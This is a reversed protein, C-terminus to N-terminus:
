KQSYDPIVGIVDLKGFLTGDNVSRLNIVFIEKIAIWAAALFVGAAAGLAIYIINWLEAKYVVTTTQASDLVQVSTNSLMSSMELSFAEAVANAVDIAEQANVSGASIKIMISRYNATSYYASEEVGTDVNIMGLITNADPYANGLISNAREAVRTSQIIDVYINMMQVSEATQSYSDEAVCYVSATAQHIDKQDAVVYAALCALLIGVSAMALLGRWKQLIARFCQGFDIYILRDDNM